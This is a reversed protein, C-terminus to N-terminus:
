FYVDSNVLGNSECLQANRNIIHTTKVSQLPSAYCPPAPVSRHDKSLKGTHSKIRNQTQMRNESDYHRERRDNQQPGHATSSNHAPTPYSLARPQDGHTQIDTVAPTSLQRAKSFTVGRERMSGRDM